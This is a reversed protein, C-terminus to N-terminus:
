AISMFQNDGLCFKTCLLKAQLHCQSCNKWFDGFEFDSLVKVKFFRKNSRVEALLNKRLNVMKFNHIIKIEFNSRKSVIEFEIM